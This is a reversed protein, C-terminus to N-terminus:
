LPEMACLSFLCFDFYLAVGSLPLCSMHLHSTEQDSTSLTGVQDLSAGAEKGQRSTGQVWRPVTSGAHHQMASPQWSPAPFAWGQCRGHIPGICRAKGGQPPELICSCPCAPSHPPLLYLGLPQARGPLTEHAAQRRWGSHQVWRHPRPSCFPSDRQQAEAARPAHPLPLGRERYGGWDWLPRPALTKPLRWPHLAGM